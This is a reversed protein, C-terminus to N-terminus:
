ELNYIIYQNSSQYLNLSMTPFSLIEIWFSFITLVKNNSDCDHSSNFHKNCSFLSILYISYSVVPNFCPYTFKLKSLFPINFIIQNKYSAEQNVTSLSYSFFPTRCCARVVSTAENQLHCTGNRRLSNMVSKEYKSRPKGHMIFKWLCM